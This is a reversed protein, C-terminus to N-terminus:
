FNIRRSNPIQVFDEFQIMLELGKWTEAVLDIAIVIQHIEFHVFRDDRQALNPGHESLNLKFWTKDAGDRALQPGACFRLRQGNSGPSPCM